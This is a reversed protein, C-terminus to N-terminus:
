TATRLRIRLTTRALRRMKVSFPMPDWGNCRVHLYHTTGMKARPFAFHGNVDTTTSALVHKPDQDCDGVLVGSITRTFSADCEEVLVGPVAAGTSDVVVGALNRAQFPRDIVILELQAHASPVFLSSIVFVSIWQGPRQM